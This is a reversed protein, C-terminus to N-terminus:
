SSGEADQPRGRSALDAASAEGQDSPDGAARGIEAKVASRRASRLSLAQDDRMRFMVRWFMFALMAFVLFPIAFYLM